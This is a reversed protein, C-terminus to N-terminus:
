KGSPGTRIAYTYTSPDFSQPVFVAYLQAPWTVSTQTNPTQFVANNSKYSIAIGDKGFIGDTPLFSAGTDAANPITLGTQGETWVIPTADPAATPIGAYTTAGAGTTGCFDFSVNTTGTKFAAVTTPKQASSDAAIYFISPDSIYGGNVLAAAVAQANAGDPYQSNDNQYQFEALAITSCTQMAASERAKAIGKTIPGLAVGALIAIIGIVVLLEVLTFGGAQYCRSAPVRFRSNLM